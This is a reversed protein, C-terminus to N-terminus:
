VDRFLSKGSDRLLGGPRFSRPGLIRSVGSLILGRLKDFCLVVFFITWVVFNIVVSIIPMM